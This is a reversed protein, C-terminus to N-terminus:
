KEEPFSFVSDPIDENIEMETVTCKGMSTGDLLRDITHPMILGNVKKYDEYTVVMISGKAQGETMLMKMQSPLGTDANFYFIMEEGTKKTLRVKHHTEDNIDEEGLLKVTHGKEAYNIFPDQVDEKSIGKAQEGELKQPAGGGAWPNIMWSTKGDYAMTMQSGMATILMKSKNPAKKMMVLPATGRASTSEGVMKITTIAAMEEAGGSAKLYDNIIDDVDQAGLISVTGSLILLCILRFLSKM